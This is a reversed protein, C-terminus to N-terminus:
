RKKGQSRWQAEMEKLKTADPDTPVIALYGKLEDAAREFEQQRYYINALYIHARVSQVGDLDLARTLAKTAEPRRDLEFNAMGLLMYSRANDPEATVAKDFYESAEAFQGKILKCYGAGRLASGYRPNTVLARDFDAAAAALQRRSLNLDARATLAQFYDPYLEIAQSFNELAEDLKNENKFKMGEEFAKRAKKPVKQGAEAATIVSPKSRSNAARGSHLSFNVSITNTATRTTDTRVVDSVLNPDSVSRAELEYNGAPLEMFEFRGSDNATTEFSVGLGGRIKVQVNAAPTGDPLTVKGEITFYRPRGSLSPTQAQATFHITCVIISITLASLITSSSGFITVHKSRSIPTSM